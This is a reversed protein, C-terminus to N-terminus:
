SHNEAATPPTTATMTLIVGNSHHLSNTTEPATRSQGPTAVAASAGPLEGYKHWFQGAIKLITGVVHRRL